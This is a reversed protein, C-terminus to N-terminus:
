ESPADSPPPPPAEVVVTHGLLDGLRQWRPTVLMVISGVLYAVPLVVPSPRLLNRVVISGMPAQQGDEGVVRISLLRKGLTQGSRAEGVLFYAFFVVVYVALMVIPLGSSHEEFRDGALLGVLRLALESLFATVLFDLLTAAVRRAWSAAQLEVGPAVVLRRPRRQSRFACLATVLLLPIAATANALWWLLGYAPWLPLESLAEEAQWQGERWRHIALSATM